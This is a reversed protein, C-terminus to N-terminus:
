SVIKFNVSTPPLRNKKTKKTGRKAKFLVSFRKTSNAKVFFMEKKISEKVCASAVEDEVLGKDESFDAYMNFKLDKSSTNKIYVSNIFVVYNGEFYFDAFQSKKYDYVLPEEKAFINLLCLILITIFILLILCFSALIIKYRKNKFM